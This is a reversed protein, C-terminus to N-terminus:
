IRNILDRLGAEVSIKPRYKLQSIAKSIDACNHRVDGKRERTYIPKLDKVGLLQIITFALSNITTAKGSGINFIEGSVANNTAALINAQVVDEVHVFDRSQEGDGYIEPPLGRKVRWIFKPIVEAYAGTPRQRPGYVNFYRLIVTELGYVENYLLCYKEAILKTLAYPSQPNIHADETLREPADEYVSSSSAFIIKKVETRRAAELLNLTGNVNVDHYDKPFDISEAVYTLAAEHFILDVNKLNELLLKEDRVDGQIFKFNRKMWLHRINEMKGASLDDIVLVEAGKKVLEEAIHSGIFGAGGTILVKGINKESM